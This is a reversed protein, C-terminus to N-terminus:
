SMTPPMVVVSRTVIATPFQAEHLVGRYGCADEIRQQLQQRGRNLLPEHILTMMVNPLHDALRFLDGLREGCCM